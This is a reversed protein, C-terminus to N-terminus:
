LLSWCVELGKPGPHAVQIEAGGQTPQRQSRLELSGLDTPAASLPRPRRQPCTSRQQCHCQVIIVDVELGNTFAEHVTLGILLEVGQLAGTASANALSTESSTTSCPCSSSNYSSGERKTTGGKKTLRQCINHLISRQSSLLTNLNTDKGHQWPTEKGLEGRVHSTAVLVKAIHPM